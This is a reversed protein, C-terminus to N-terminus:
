IATSCVREMEELIQCLMNNTIRQVKLLLQIPIMVIPRESGKPEKNGSYLTKRITARQNEHQGISYM